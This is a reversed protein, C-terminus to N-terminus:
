NKTTDSQQKEEKLQEMVEKDLSDAKQKIENTSNEKPGCAPIIFVVGLLIIGSRLKM